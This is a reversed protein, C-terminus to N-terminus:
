KQLLFVFFLFFFKPCSSFIFKTLLFEEFLSNIRDLHDIKLYISPEKLPCMHYKELCRKQTELFEKESQEYMFPALILYANEYLYKYRRILEQKAQDLNM